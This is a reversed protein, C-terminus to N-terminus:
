RTVAPLRPAPAPLASVVGHAVLTKIASAALSRIMDTTHPDPNTLSNLGMALIVGLTPIYPIADPLGFNLACTDM